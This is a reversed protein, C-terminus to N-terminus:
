RLKQVEAESLDTFRCIESLPRQAELMRRATKIREKDLGRQEGQQMGQRMGQQVGQQMGQQMGEKRGKERAKIPDFEVIEHVIPKEDPGLSQREVESLRELDLAANLKQMYGGAIAFLEARYEVTTCRFLRLIFVVARTGAEINKDFEVLQKRYKM